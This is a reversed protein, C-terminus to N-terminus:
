IAVPVEAGAVVVAVVGVAVVVFFFGVTAEVMKLVLVVM